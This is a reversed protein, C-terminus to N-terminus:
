TINNTFHNTVKVLDDQTPFELGCERWHCNTEIFDGPEDKLPDGSDAGGPSCKSSSCDSGLGGPVAGAGTYEFIDVMLLINCFDSYPSDERRM